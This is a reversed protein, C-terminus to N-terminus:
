IFMGFFAVVAGIIAGYIAKKFPTLVGAGILAGGLIWLPIALALGYKQPHEVFYIVRYNPIFIGLGIAILATSAFIRRTSFQMM